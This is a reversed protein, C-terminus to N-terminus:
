MGYLENKDNSFAERYKASAKSIRNREFDVVEHRWDENEFYHNAYSEFFGEGPIHNSDNKKGVLAPLSPLGLNVCWEQIADLLFAVERSHPNGMKMRRAFESYSISTQGEHSAQWIVMAAERVKSEDFRHSQKDMFDNRRLHRTQMNLQSFDTQLSETQQEVFEYTM